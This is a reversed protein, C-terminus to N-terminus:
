ANEIAAVAEALHATDVTEMLGCAALGDIFEV